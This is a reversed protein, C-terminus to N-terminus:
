ALGDAPIRQDIFLHKGRPSLTIHDVPVLRLAVQGSLKANLEALITAGIEATYGSGPEVLLDAYGAVEQVFRFRTVHGLAASHMNIATMSIKTGTGSVLYESRWRGEVHTLRPGPRGCRCPGDAWMAYDGTRYRVLPMSTSLLGTAVIEGLVGAATIPEGSESLLEIIGYTQAVHLDTSSECEAAFCARESMGYLSLVRASFMEELVRRQDPYLNESVAFLAKTQPATLGADTYSRGLAEMASPYGHIFRADFADIRARIEPLHAADMDFTSVYLERRLPEYRTLERREGEGLRVGRLVVRPDDLRFGARGWASVVYAWDRLSADKDLWFGVQSGTTGGTTVYKRSALPVTSDLMEPVCERLVDKDIPEIDPLAALGRSTDVHSIRKRWFSTRACATYVTDLRGDVIRATAEIDRETRAILAMEDIFPAGYRVRVPLLRGVTGAATRVGTPLSEYAARLTHIM